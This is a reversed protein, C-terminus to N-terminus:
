GDKNQGWPIFPVKVFVTTGRGPASEIEVTGGVLAARERMSVLGLGRGSSKVKTNAKPDFGKGDDEIVLVVLKQRRELVVSAQSAKAHKFVNNLAEQVIRYLNTEIAPDLRKNKLGSSHFDAPINFHRSWEQVYNGAAAVLGLDDLAAPRLEWALFSVEEDLKAGIEGLREIRAGLEDDKGYSEKLSAIKLRLATLRQGLTDHLDRAIRSREDEQTTVIKRLLGVREEEARTREAMELRLSENSEALEATREIVKTELNEHADRLAEETLKRETLDRAIKAFGHLGGDLLPTMVGSAYFRSGDKRIHYREDEARGKELAIQQEKQPIGRGRDEPTYLIDASRGIIEEGTYGFVREAGTNWSDLKGDVSMTFIAFDEASEILLRQKEESKRLTADAELRKSIDRVTATLGVIKKNEDRIPSLNLSIDIEAGGKHIQVTEFDEIMEGRWSRDFLINQEDERGPQTLMGLPHGIAEEALYGFIERAGTNWSIIKRDFAFSFIADNSSEVVTALWRLRKEAEIRRTIDVFTIVVGEIKDDTTRYPLIRVMYCNDKDDCIEREAPKLSKLVQAADMSLDPYDLNHTVHSLPRGIDGPIINFLGEITQTFLKVRLDRDLFITGIDTSTMLNQLDSNIRGTEEVKEKLEQNVTTLEENVSQLEEKGTELEESASRLEENVAQLEENSAKLEEISVEHQEITTRLRTKTQGLDDELRSVIAEMADESGIPPMAPAENEEPAPSDKEEDFIVLLFRGGAEAIDVPRVILTTTTEHHDTGVRLNRFEVPKAEQRVSFLAARLDALLDPHVAKLVSKSPEGGAFRLYKGASESVHVIEFEENVLVSPPAYQEVLKYHMEGFSLMREPETEHPPSPLKLQWEGKLPLEVSPMQATSSPRQSYIRHKKDVPSFISEQSEASESSGLFIFGAPNLAFHFIQLVKDQIERNLYILLNRCTVLDLRSFPPDRLVNHPAFLILERISKKVRYKNGEKVFYSKFRKPSVDAEITDPYRNYRAENIADDDVDTAFIQIKPPDPITAAYECLLIALSYAEEGSACGASWVRVQDKGTKNEFLKPIVKKELAAFAEKDRFFNTVNILLNKVLLQVDDPKERLLDLYAGIDELEHIQIHRAIRRLLTPHKYNSFDHGTRARVLTLVERLDEVGSIEILAKKNGNTLNLRESSDRFYILKGPIQDVPLIWDVLDTEIASQPMSDYEANKPDQVIAFGNKEKVQKLGLTGDSGTGSLVICVANSEYANALTRFFLDIAVRTGRTPEPETLTIVGDVMALNKNPPIVYVYNPEVKVTETVQMVSLSTEAQLIAALTSEHKPSLHLIVVFAMGPDPPMNAFFTKLAKIGGASAGIGVALFDHKENGNTQTTPKGPKRKM